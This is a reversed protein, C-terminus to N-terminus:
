VGGGGSGGCRRPPDGPEPLPEGCLVCVTGAGVCREDFPVDEEYGYAVALSAARRARRRDRRREREEVVSAPPEPEEYDGFSEAAAMRDLCEAAWALEAPDPDPTLV